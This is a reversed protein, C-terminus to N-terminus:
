GAIKFSQAPPLSTPVHPHQLDLHQCILRMLLQLSTSSRRLYSGLRSRFGPSRLACHDLLLSWSLMYGLLSHFDEPQQEIIAQLASPIPAQGAEEEKLTEEEKDKQKDDDTHIHDALEKISIQRNLLVM